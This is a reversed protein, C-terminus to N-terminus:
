AKSLVEEMDRYSKISLLSGVAWTSNIKALQTNVLKKSLLGKIATETYEFNAINKFPAWPCVNPKPQFAPIEKSAL